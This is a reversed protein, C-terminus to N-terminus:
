DKSLTKLVLEQARKDLAANEAREIHMTMIETLDNLAAKGENTWYSYKADASSRYFYKTNTMLGTISSYLIDKIATSDLM